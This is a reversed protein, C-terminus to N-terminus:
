SRVEKLLEAKAARHEAVALRNREQIVEIDTQDVDLLATRTMADPWAQDAAVLEAEAAAFREAALTVRYRREHGANLRAAEATPNPAHRQGWGM